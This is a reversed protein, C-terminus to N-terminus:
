VLQYRDSDLEQLMIVLEDDRFQFETHTPITNDIAKCMEVKQGISDVSHTNGFLQRFMKAISQRSQGEHYLSAIM